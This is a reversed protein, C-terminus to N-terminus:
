FRPYFPSVISSPLKFFGIWPKEKSYEAMPNFILLM